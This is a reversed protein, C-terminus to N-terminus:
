MVDYNNTETKFDCNKNGVNQEMKLNRLVVEWILVCHHHSLCSM